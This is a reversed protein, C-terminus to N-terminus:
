VKSFIILPHHSEQNEMGSNYGQNKKYWPASNILLVAKCHLCIVLPFIRDSSEM